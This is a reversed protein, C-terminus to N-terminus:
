TCNDGTSNRGGHKGVFTGRSGTSGFGASVGVATEAGGGSNLGIFVQDSSLYGGGNALGGGSVYPVVGDTLGAVSAPVPGPEMKGNVPNFVWTKGDDSGDGAPPTVDRLRTFAPSPTSTKTIKVSM